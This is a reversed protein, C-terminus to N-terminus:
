FKPGEASWTEEIYPGGRDGILSLQGKNKPM